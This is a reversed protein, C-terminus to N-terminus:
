NTKSFAFMNQEIATHKLTMSLVAIFPVPMEAEIRGTDIVENKRMRVDVM